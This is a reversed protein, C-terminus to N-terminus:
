FGVSPFHEERNHDFHHAMDDSDIYTRENALHCGKDHVEVAHGDVFALGVVVLDGNFGDRRRYTRVVNNRAKDYSIM